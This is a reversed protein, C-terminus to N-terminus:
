SRLKEKTDQPRAPPEANQLLQNKYKDELEKIFHAEKNKQAKDAKENLIEMKEM